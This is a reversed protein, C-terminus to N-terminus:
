YKNVTSGQGILFLETKKDQPPKQETLIELNHPSFNDEITTDM